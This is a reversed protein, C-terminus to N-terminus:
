HRDLTLRAGQTGGEQEEQEQQQEGEEEEEEEEEERRKGKKGTSSTLNPALAGHRAGQSRSRVHRPITCLKTSATIKAHANKHGM